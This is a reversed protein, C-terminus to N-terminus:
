TQILFLFGALKAVITNLCQNSHHNCNEAKFLEVELAM